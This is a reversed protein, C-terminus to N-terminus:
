RAIELFKKATVIKIGRFERLDLLHNDGTVVYDANCSVACELIKNDDPDDKVVNLKTDTKTVTAYELILNIQKHIKEDPEEFDRRLIKELEQLIEISTFAHTKKDLVLEVVKHPNGRKWFISSVFINTDLVVKLM